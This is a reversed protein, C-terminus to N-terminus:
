RPARERREVRGLHTQTREREQACSYLGWHVLHQWCYIGDKTPSDPLATFAYWATNKCRYPDSAAAPARTGDSNWFAAMPARVTAHCRTGAPLRRVWPLRAILLLRDPDPLM